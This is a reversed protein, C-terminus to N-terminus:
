AGGIDVAERAWVLLEERREIIEVPVEYYSKLRQKASPQFPEMGREVYRAASTADTKFLRGKWAIGFFTPGLYLGHGGFMARSRLTKGLLSLQDVVHDRFPDSRAM